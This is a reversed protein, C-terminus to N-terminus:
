ERERERERKILSKAVDIALEFMRPQKHEPSLFSQFHITM